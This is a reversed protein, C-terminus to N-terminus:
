PGGGPRRVLGKSSSSRGGRSSPRNAQIENSKGLLRAEVEDWTSGANPDAEYVMLRYDLEKKLGDSLPASEREADISDLIEQVLRVRDDLSLDVIGLKKALSVM